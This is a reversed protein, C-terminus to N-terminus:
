FVFDDPTNDVPTPREKESTKLHKKIAKNIEELQQFAKILANVSYTDVTRYKIEKTSIDYFSDGYLQTLCDSEFIFFKVRGVNNIEISFYLHSKQNARITQVCLKEIQKQLFLYLHHVQEEWIDLMGGILCNYYQHGLKELANIAESTSKFEM